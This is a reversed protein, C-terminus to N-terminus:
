SIVGVGQQSLPVVGDDQLGDTSPMKRKSLSSTKINLLSRKTSNEAEMKSMGDTSEIYRVLNNNQVNEDGQEQQTSINPLTNKKRL